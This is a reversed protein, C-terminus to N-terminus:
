KQLKTLLEQYTLTNEPHERLYRYVKDKVTESAGLENFLQVDKSWTTINAQREALQQSIQTLSKLKQFNETEKMRKINTILDGYTLFELRKEKTMKKLLSSLADITGFFRVDYDDIGCAKLKEMELAVVRDSQLSGDSLFTMKQKALAACDENDVISM